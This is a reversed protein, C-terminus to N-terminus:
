SEPLGKVTPGVFTAWAGTGGAIAKTWFTLTTCDDSPPISVTYTRYAPKANPPTVPLAKTFLVSRVRNKVKSTVTIRVPDGGPIPSAAGFVLKASNGPVICSFTYSFGATVTVTPTPGTVAGTDLNSLFAGKGGPLAVKTDPFVVGPKDTLAYETWASPSPKTSTATRTACGGLLLLTTATLLVYRVM